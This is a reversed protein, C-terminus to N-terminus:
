QQQTQSVLFVGDMLAHLPLVTSWCSQAITSLVLAPCINELFWCEIDNWVNYTNAHEDNRGQKGNYRHIVYLCLSKYKEM